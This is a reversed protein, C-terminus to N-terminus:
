DSMSEPCSCGNFLWCIEYFAKCPCTGYLGIIREQPKIFVYLILFM